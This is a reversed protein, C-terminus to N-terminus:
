ESKTKVLAMFMDFFSLATLAVCVGALVQWVREIAPKFGPTGAIFGVLFGGIVGGIHAANDTAFFPLLGMALIYIVWRSYFRRIEAGWASRDRVGLAIMAGILGMIGASAGISPTMPSWFFSALFGTVTSVFYIVLYRSTGYMEETQAGLDFLVWSNMLIHLIGGHLFGATVLRWWEGQVMYPGFKAGFDVLTRGDFDFSIGQGGSQMHIMMAIYLGTNILLIVTTTFRAHPILGGLAGAPSRREVAKPGVRFDCYPCVKDDTTIFARCNPCMRRKDM